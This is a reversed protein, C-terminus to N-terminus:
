YFQRLSEDVSPRLVFLMMTMQDYLSTAFIQTDGWELRSEWEQGARRWDYLHFRQQKRRMLMQRQATSTSLFMQEQDRVIMWNPVRMLCVFEVCTARVTGRRVPKMPELNEKVSRRWVAKRDAMEEDVLTQCGPLVQKM